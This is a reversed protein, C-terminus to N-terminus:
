AYRDRKKQLLAIGLAILLMGCIALLPIPWVLQGTQPLFATNTVTFTSGTQSYTATFGKPIDVEVVSYADSEPIDAFTVQWHNQGSLVATKVVVGDRLLQVTVQEAAQASDDTNWIKRVTIETLRAVETKPSANIDYVYGEATHQPLTVLFPRCPAYGAVANTQRVFYLGPLLEPFLVSGDGGTSAKAAPLPHAQAFADLTASLAPDELACGCDEFAQTFTYCLENRGNLRVTAVCYLSLEAGTIPTQGNKDRLTVSISGARGPEFAQAFATLPLICLVLVILLVSRLKRGM